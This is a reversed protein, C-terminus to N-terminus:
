DVPLEWAHLTSQRYWPQLCEQRPPLKPLLRKVLYQILARATALEMQLRRETGDPSPLNLTLTPRPMAPPVLLEYGFRERLHDRVIPWDPVSIRGEAWSPNVAARYCQRIFGLDVSDISLHSPDDAKAVVKEQVIAQGMEETLRLRERRLQNMHELNAYLNGIVESKLKDCSIAVTTIKTSM